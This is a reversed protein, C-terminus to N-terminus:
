HNVFPGCFPGHDGDSDRIWRSIRHKDKGEVIRPEWGEKKVAGPISFPSREGTFSM